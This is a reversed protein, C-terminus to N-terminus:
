VSCLVVYCLLTAVCLPETFLPDVSDVAAANIAYGGKATSNVTLAPSFADHFWATSVGCKGAVCTLRKDLQM